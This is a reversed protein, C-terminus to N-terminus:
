LFQAKNRPYSSYYVIINRANKLLDERSKHLDQSGGFAVNIMFGCSMALFVRRNIRSDKIHKM